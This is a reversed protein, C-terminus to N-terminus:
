PILAELAQRKPRVVLAGLAETGPKCDTSRRYVPMGTEVDTTCTWAVHPRLLGHAKLWGVFRPVGSVHQERKVHRAPGAVLARAVDAATAWLVPVDPPV